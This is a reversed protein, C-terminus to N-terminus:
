LTLERVVVEKEEIEEISYEPFRGGKPVKLDKRELPTLLNV